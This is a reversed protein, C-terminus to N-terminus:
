RKEYRVQGTLAQSIPMMALWSADLRLVYRLIYEDFPYPPTYRMVAGAGVTSIVFKSDTSCAYSDNACLVVVDAVFKSLM